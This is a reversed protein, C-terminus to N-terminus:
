TMLLNGAKTSHQSEFTLSKKEKLEAWHAPWAEAPYNPDIESVTRGVIEERTYGLMRSTADNVYLITADPRIWFVADVARDVSFQTFMLARESRKRETIDTITGVMRLPAGASDRAVVKGRDLFWRYDGGKTRLRVESSKSETRGQLHDEIGERVRAADEPHVLPYFFEVRAPVEGPEFGLLRQWQPSFYVEGTALNWDWVGDSTAELAHELRQESARQATIDQL